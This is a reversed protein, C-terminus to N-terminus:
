GSHSFGSKDWGRATSHTQRGRVGGKEPGDEVTDARKALDEGELQEQVKVIVYIVYFLPNECVNANKIASFIIIKM